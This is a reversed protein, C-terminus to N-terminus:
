MTKFARSPLPDGKVLDEGAFQVVLHTKREAGEDEETLALDDRRRKGGKSGASRGMSGQTHEGTKDKPTADGSSVEIAEDDGVRTVVKAGEVAQKILKLAEGGDAADVFASQTALLKGVAEARQAVLKFRPVYSPLTIQRAPNSGRAPLNAVVPAPTVWEKPVTLSEATTLLLPRLVSVRLDLRDTTLSDPSGVGEIVWTDAQNTIAGGRKRKVFEGEEKVIGEMREGAKLYCHPGYMVLGQHDDPVTIIVKSGEEVALARAQEPLEDEFEDTLLPM